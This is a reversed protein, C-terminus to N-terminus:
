QVNLTFTGEHKGEIEFAPPKRWPGVGYRAEILFRGRLAGAGRLAIPVSLFGIRSDNVAPHDTIIAEETRPPQGEVHATLRIRVEEQDQSAERYRYHVGLSVDDRPSAAFTLSPEAHFEILDGEIRVQGLKFSKEERAM